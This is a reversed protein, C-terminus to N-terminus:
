KKNEKFDKLGFINKLNMMRKKKAEMEIRNKEADIEREEHTKVKTDFKIM